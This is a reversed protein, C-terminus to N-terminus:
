SFSLSLFFSVIYFYVHLYIDELGVLMWLWYYRAQYCYMTGAVKLELGNCLNCMLPSFFSGYFLGRVCDCGTEGKNWCM